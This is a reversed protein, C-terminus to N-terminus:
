DVKLPDIQLYKKLWRALIYIIVTDALAVFFKFSYNDIFLTFLNSFLIQGALFASGFTIAIVVFSDALQSLLTSGNNRLWLYKGKTLKKFFHFLYVDCFQAVIYAVMSALVAGTTTAYILRFLEVDGKLVEGNPLIIDAGVSLVQWPPQLTTAVSPLVNGLYVFLILLLNIILGVWVLNSAKRKGYFESILDTCIFTLPYPL